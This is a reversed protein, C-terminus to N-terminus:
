ALAATTLGYGISDLQREEEPFRPILSLVAENFGTFFQQALLAASEFAPPYAGAFAWDVLWVEGNQDLILNRPSIDQHTLVFTTFQFPPIDKPCQKVHKCIDLKHNFWGQFGASDKFPGASYDTFFRGRFPGGGPPGPQLIVVSQMEKIMEAIQIAIQRQNNSTLDAWCKDLPQGPIFDMVIYGKTGFYQTDDEVQFSRHVRPARIGTRSAVLNLTKAECPLVTGGGKM